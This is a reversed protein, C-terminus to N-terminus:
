WNRMYSLQIGKWLEEEVINSYSEISNQRRYELVTDREEGHLRHSELYISDITHTNNNKKM